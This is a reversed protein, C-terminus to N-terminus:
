QNLLKKYYISMFHLLASVRESEFQLVLTLILVKKKFYIYGIDKCNNLWM